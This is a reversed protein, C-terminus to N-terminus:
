QINYIGVENDDNWTAVINSGHMSRIRNVCGKHPVTEFKMEPMKENENDSEDEDVEDDKLTSHMESWKMVYIKNENKKLAQSGGCFYVTYPFKDHKHITQGYKDKTSFKPDINHVNGPFWSQDSGNAREKLLVDISLCPWEVKARHLMQYASNDFVLEEDDQLPQESENWIKKKGKTDDAEVGEM